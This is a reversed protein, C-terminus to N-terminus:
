AGSRGLRCRGLRHNGLSRRGPRVHYEDRSSRQACFLRRGRLRLCPPHLESILREVDRAAAPSSRASEVWRALAPRLDLERAPMDLFANPDACSHVRTHLRAVQRGVQHWVKQREARGLNSLGLTEGHIREWLSFPRDVLTRSDDFAILLPTLIGALRALPAAVSETRADSVADPNDTAVRLIVGETAYIRNAIGTSPLATWPRRVGHRALMADVPDDTM